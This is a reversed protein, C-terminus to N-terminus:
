VYPDIGLLEVLHRVTKGSPHNFTLGVTSGERETELRCWAVLARVTLPDWLTPADIRLTVPTGEPVPDELHVCAGGVGLNVITADRRWTTDEHAIVAQLPIEKRAYARFHTRSAM